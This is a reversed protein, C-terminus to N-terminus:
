EEADDTQPVAADSESLGEEPVEGMLEQLTRRRRLQMRLLDLQGSQDMSQRLAVTSTKQSRAVAALTAEFEESPVTVQRSEAIADLLLRAEVRQTAQPRVQEAMAQWDLEVKSPDVGRAALENAYERLLGEIEADVVGQPLPFHHRERLQDLVAREREQSRESRKSASISESVKARLEDVSSFDGLRAALEDDLEALKREKVARVDM